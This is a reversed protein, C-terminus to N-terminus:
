EGGNLQEELKRQQRDLLSQFRAEIQIGNGSDSAWAPLAEKLDLPLQHRIGKGDLASLSDALAAETAELQLRTGRHRIVGLAPRAGLKADLQLILHACCLARLLAPDGGETAAFRLTLGDRRYVKLEGHYLRCLALATSHSRTLRRELEARGWQQTLRSYSSWYVQVVIWEVDLSAMPPVAVPPDSLTRLLDGLSDNGAYPLAEAQEGPHLLNARARQLLQDIRRGLGLTLAAALAALIAGLILLQANLNLQASEAAAPDLALTVSGALDNGIMVPASYRRWEGRNRGIEVLVGGDSDTVSAYALLPNDRHQNLVNLLAVRDNRLLGQQVQFAVQKVWQSAFVQHQESMLQANGRASALLLLSSHLGLVVIILLACKVPLSLRLLGSLARSFLQSIQDPM